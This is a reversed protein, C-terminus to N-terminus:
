SHPFCLRRRLERGDDVRATHPGTPFPERRGLYEHLGGLHKPQERISHSEGQQVGEGVGLHRNAVNRVGQVQRERCCTVLQSRKPAHAEDREAVFPPERVIARIIVEDTMEHMVTQRVHLSLEAMRRRRMMVCVDNTRLLGNCAASRWLASRGRTSHPRTPQRPAYNHSAVIESRRSVSGTRLSAADDHHKPETRARQGRKHGALEWWM